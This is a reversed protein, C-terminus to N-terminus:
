RAVYLNHMPSGSITWLRVWIPLLAESARAGIIDGLDTIHQWGFATAIDSVTAKAGADNGAIFLDHAGPVLAPNVMVAAAITNFAKVVHTDPFAAQIQEGLSTPGAYAPNIFPPMGHSFDLANAIDILVKGKLNAAGALTLAELSGQGATANVVVAGHAAAQAMTVVKAGTKAQWDALPAAQARDKALEQPTVSRIGLVVDHGLAILGAGFTQAVGGGGIIGIKM